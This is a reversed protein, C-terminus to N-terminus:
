YYRWKADGRVKRILENLKKELSFSGNGDLLAIQCVLTFRGDGGFCMM